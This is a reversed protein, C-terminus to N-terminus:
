EEDSNLGQWFAIHITKKNVLTHTKVAKCTYRPQDQSLLMGYYHRQCTRRNNAIVHCHHLRVVCGVFSQNNTHCKEAGNDLSIIPQKYGLTYERHATLNADLAYM